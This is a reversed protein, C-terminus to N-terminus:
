YGINLKHNKIHIAAIGRIRVDNRAKLKVIPPLLRGLGTTRSYADMLDDDKHGNDGASGFAIEPNERDM